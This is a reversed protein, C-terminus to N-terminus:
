IAGNWHRQDRLSRLVCLAEYGDYYLGFDAYKVSPSPRLTGTYYVLPRTIMTICPCLGRLQRCQVMGVLPYLAQHIRCATSDNEFAALVNSKGSELFGAAAEGAGSHFVLTNVKFPQVKTPQPNPITTPRNSFSTVRHEQAYPRTSTTWPHHYVGHPSINTFV